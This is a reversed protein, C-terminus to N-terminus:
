VGLLQKKKAEFEEASLIGEDMLQKYERIAEAKERDTKPAPAEERSSPQEDKKRQADLLARRSVGCSCTSVYAAQVRGCSCKWGGESLLQEKYAGEATQYLGAGRYPSHYVKQPKAIAVILALMGFFFGWWFWNETYGKNEIVANTVVGFFVGQAIVLFLRLIFYGM